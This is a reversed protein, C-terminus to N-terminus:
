LQVEINANLERGSRQAKTGIYQSADNVNECGGAKLAVVEFDYKPVGGGTLYPLYIKYPDTQSFSVTMRGLRDFDAQSNTGNKYISVCGNKGGLLASTAASPKIKLNISTMLVTGGPSVASALEYPKGTSADGGAFETDFTDCAAGPRVVVRDFMKGAPAAAFVKYETEGNIKGGSFVALILTKGGKGDVDICVKSEDHPTLSAFTGEGGIKLTLEEFPYYEGQGLIGSVGSKIATPELQFAYFLRSDGPGTEDIGKGVAYPCTAGADVFSVAAYYEYSDTVSSSSVSLAVETDGTARTQEAAAIIPMSDKPCPNAASPDKSCNDENSGRILAFCYKGHSVAPTFNGPITMSLKLAPAGTAGTDGADEFGAVEQTGCYIAKYKGFYLSQLSVKKAAEDITLLSRRWIKQKGGATKLLVCMDDANGVLGFGPDNLHLAAGNDISLAVTMPQSAQELAVGDSGVAKIEVTSSASESGVEFAPDDAVKQVSVDTGIAVAGPPVTVKSGDDIAVEGGNEGVEESNKNRIQEKEKSTTQPACALAILGAMVVPVSTSIIKTKM